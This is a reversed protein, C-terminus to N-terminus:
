RWNLHQNNQIQQWWAPDDPIPRISATACHIEGQHCHLAWVDETAGVNLNEQVYTDFLGNGVWPYIFKGNPLKVSNVVNSTAALCKGSGEPDNDFLVPMPKFTVDDAYDGLGEKLTSIADNIKSVASLDANIGVPLNRCMVDSLAYITAGNQHATAPRGGQARSVTVSYQNVTEVQLLENDVRLIDGESFVRENVHLTIDEIADSMAGNLTTQKYGEDHPAILISEITKVRSDDNAFGFHITDTDGTGAVICSHMLDAALSPNAYIIKSANVWLFIEDVHGVWLWDTDITITPQLGQRTWHQSSDDKKSGIMLKGYPANDLPPTAMMNGGDGDVYWITTPINESHRLLGHLSGSQSSDLMLGIVGNGSTDTQTHCFKVYDRM